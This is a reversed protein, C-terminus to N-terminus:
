VALFRKCILRKALWKKMFLSYSSVKGECAIDSLLAFKVHFPFANSLFDAYV